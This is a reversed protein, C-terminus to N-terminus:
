IEVVRSPDKPSTNKEKLAKDIRDNYYRAKKRYIRALNLYMAAKKFFEEERKEATKRRKVLLTLNAPM